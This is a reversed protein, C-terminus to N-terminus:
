RETGFRLYQGAHEKLRAIAGVTAQDESLGHEDCIAKFREIENPRIEVIRYRKTIRIRATVKVQSLCWLFRSRAFWDELFVSPMPIPPADEDDTIREGKQMQTETM